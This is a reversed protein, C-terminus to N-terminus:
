LKVCQFVCYRPNSWKSGYKKQISDSPYIEDFKRISFGSNSLDNIYDSLPRHHYPVGEIRNKSDKTITFTVNKVMRKMYSYEEGFFRKYNNYFCPHPISLFLHGGTKIHVAISELFGRLDDVVHAVLHSIAMDQPTDCVLELSSCNHLSISSNELVIESVEFMGQSPEIATVALGLESLALALHGTGSGVELISAPGALAIEDLYYPIFVDCFTLDDGSEIQNRRIEASSNWRHPM